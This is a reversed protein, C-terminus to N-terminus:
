RRISFSTKAKVCLKSFKSGRTLQRKKLHSHVERVVIESLVLHSPRGNFQELTKLIGFELGLGKEDFISTDITIAGYDM